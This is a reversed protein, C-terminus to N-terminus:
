EEVHRLHFREFITPMEKTSVIKQIDDYSRQVIDLLDEIMAQLSKADEVAEIFLDNSFRSQNHYKSSHEDKIRKAM